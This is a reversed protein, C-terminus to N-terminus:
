ENNIIKYNKNNFAVVGSNSHCEEIDRISKWTDKFVVGDVIKLLLPMSNRINANDYKEQSDPWKKLFNSITTNEYKLGIRSFLLFSSLLYPKKTWSKNFRILLHKTDDTVIITSKKFGLKDEIKNLFSLLNSSYNNMDENIYSMGLYYWLKNHYKPIVKWTFGYKTVSEGVKKQYQGWFVDQFYDKCRVKETLANGKNDCLVLNPVPSSTKYSEILASNNPLLCLNM